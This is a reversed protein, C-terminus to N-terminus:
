GTSTSTANASRLILLPVPKEKDGTVEVSQRPMGDLRDYVYKLAVINGNQALEILKDAITQKDVKERLVSTMTETDGRNINEPHEGFGGKGTPNM